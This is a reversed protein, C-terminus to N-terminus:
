DARIGAQRVVPGWRKTEAIIHQRFAEPTTPWPEVGLATMRERVNTRIEDLDDILLALPQRQPESTGGM